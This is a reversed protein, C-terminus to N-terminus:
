RRIRGVRLTQAFEGGPIHFLGNLPEFCMSTFPQTMQIKRGGTLYSGKQVLAKFTQGIPPRKSRLSADM